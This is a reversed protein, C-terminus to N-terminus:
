TDDKEVKENESVEMKCFKPKFLTFIEVNVFNELLYESIM